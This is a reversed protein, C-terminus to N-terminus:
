VTWPKLAFDSSVFIGVMGYCLHKGHDPKASLSWQEDSTEVLCVNACFIKFLM